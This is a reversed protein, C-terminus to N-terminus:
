IYNMCMDSIVHIILYYDNNEIILLLEIVFSKSILTRNKYLKKCSIALELSRFRLRIYEESKFV